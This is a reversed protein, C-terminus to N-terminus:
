YIIDNTGFALFVIDGPRIQDPQLVNRKIYRDLRYKSVLMILEVTSPKCQVPPHFTIEPICSVARNEFNVLLASISKEQM